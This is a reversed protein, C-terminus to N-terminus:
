STEKELPHVVVGDVVADLRTLFLGALEAVVAEDVAGPLYSWLTQLQPGDPGEVAAANLEVAHDVGMDDGSRGDLGGVVAWDREATDPLATDPLATDPLATDPLTTGTAAGAAGIRGLYNVLLPPVPADALPRGPDLHRLVGWGVGGDPVAALTAAVSAVADAASGTAPGPDLRVPFESTFWGVTRGLDSGPLLQEERGHREVDVLVPGAPDGHADRQDAVALAVATLLVAEVGPGGARLLAAVGPGTWTRSLGRTTAVTDRRPDLPACGPLPAADDLVARWRGLEDRRQPVLGTLRRAWSRFSTGVPALQPARGALVARGAEALDALLVRWSVGDVVAHHAVVVLRGPADRGADLHTVVLMRGGAPDLLGAAREAEEVPDLAGGPDRVARVAATGAGPPPVQLSWRGDDDLLSARLLDHRDLLARVAPELAATATGAPVQLTMFQHFTRVDGGLERIRELIPWAPVEGLGLGPDEVVVDGAPAAAAAAAIAEVTRHTFVERPRLALGAARARTALQMSSISDGGLAFFDDDAALPGDLGLVEAVLEAVLLGVPSAPARGGGTAPGPVPLVAKDIKGHVTLPLTDLVTVAAPVLHDPVRAALAARLAAGDGVPDGAPVVWGLLRGGRVDAVAARVGPLAGLAAEVEGLEIRFGRVKVQDDARGLYELRGDGTWRVLDGTRYLRTGPPGFPDAVFRSATLGPRDHYGHALQPGGLYLEGTVAAPVPRLRGDLVHARLGTVPRGIVPTASDAVAAVVADVCTETPGYFNFTRVTAAGPAGAPRPLAALRRWQSPPVAEGGVGLVSLGCVGDRVLGATAVQEFVSPALEVADIAHDHLFGALAEADRQTAEDVLHLAHGGLLGLLPQWSADFAFSWTHAIRLPRGLGTAAPGYVERDHHSWLALLSRHPVVVGKPRGTSGSTFIVYAPDDPRPGPGPDGDPLPGDVRLLERDGPVDTGSLTLVLRPDADDLIGGIRAAPYAPDLPVYAAGCRLAALIAVVVDTTRPLLLAVRDGRRVGRGALARALRDAAAGLEAWSSTRDGAVLAPADPTDRVWRWVADVVTAPGGVPASGDGAWAGLVRAREAGSLVDVADVPSGPAAVWSRLVRAIRDLLARAADFDLLDPRYECTLRLREGDPVVVLTVPYHTADSGGVGSVTVGAARESDAVAAEDVPYSEVVVLTDFLEGGGALRQVRALDVHQHALLRAQEDRLRRLFATGSEGARTRVRVPLTNIFLGVMDEVGPLDAPRGSVTAGFVVDERGTLRGLVVGWAAQVLTSLTVDTSRALAALGAGLGPDLDLDLDVHEPAVPTRAPDPPCLLTPGGIGDLASRWAAVATGDAADAADRRGLWALFDRFPRAPPLPTGALLAFLDRAVLPASWGDMLLHHHTLVLRADGGPLRLLAARLLPATALDFRRGREADTREDREASDAVETVTWGPAARRPVVQVPTGDACAHVAVRLNPHRDLLAHLATRLADPDVGPGLDLTEQVTYVDVGAAGDGAAGGPTGDGDVSALFWLGRQLPTLPWVDDVAGHAATIRDVEAQDLDVLAFDSPTHRSGGGAAATAIADLAEGVGDAVAAVVAGDLAGAPHSFGIELRPGDADDRVVADVELLHDPALVTEDGVGDVAVESWDGTADAGAGPRGLYNVLIPPTPPVTSPVTSPATAAPRRLAEKVAVVAAAPDGGAPDLAVPALTTFWGVTRSLDVATDVAGPDRGHRERDIWVPRDAGTDGRTGGHGDGHTARVRRVALALAALLVDEVGAHWAAPVRGLLAGTRDPDLTRVTRVVTAATDREPDLSRSGPLGDPGDPENSGSPASHASPATPAPAAAALLRAWTRFSTGVPGLAAPRGERAARVATALDPLLIQWSVADVVLHHAVLVLRGAREPSPPALLVAALVVGAPPDLRAVAADHAGAVAADHADHTDHTDHTGETDRADGTGDWAAVTLLPAADVGGRPRIELTGDDGHTRARLVDHTDLLAALAATVQEATTGPPTRLVTSQCFRAGPAGGAVRRAYWATIPTPPVLGSGDPDHAPGATDATAARAAIAAPTRLEFVQRPDTLIGEERLRSVLRIASISDGGLAFFGDHVGVRDLGLVEAVVAVVRREADTRPADTGAGAGLDPAPLASRDVKGSIATPVAPIPVFAAPVLHAPLVAALEARLEAPDPDAGPLAPVVWAVLRPGAPTPHLGVVARAVGPLAALAAEVEGPEIRFGHLKIQDDARGLFELGGALRRVLDGTRYMRAGPERPDAVFRQATLAPNALYGRAVGDGGLYLEGPVGDPVPRLRDDLVLARMGPDPRGILVPEDPTAPRGPWLTANVTTETPGYANVVHHDASWRHILSRSSADTGVVVATGPAVAAPDLLELLAPPVLLVTLARDRVVEVLGEATRDADDVIVLTGGSLVSVALEAITVDFAPSYSQSARSGPGGIGVSAFAAVLPALGAHPVVVGKPRGTSGSTFIVYAADDPAPGPMPAPDAAAVEAVVAPDDLRLWPVTDPRPADGRTIGLLPAADGLVGAIRAPPHGPDLPVYVGGAQQVALAAVLWDVSRPLAVAVARERGVGRDALVRALRHVRDALGAYTLTTTGHEVAVADPTTAAYGLVLGPFTSPPADPLPLGREAVALRAHEDDDLLPLAGVRSEPAAVAAGLLRTFRDGLARVTAADFLDRSYELAARLVPGGEDLLAVTLDFQAVDTDAHRARTGVGALGVPAGAEGVAASQFSLMVGFLPNRALSREHGVADVVRDFPVDAHAFAALDTGRVRAVLEAFTPDGSVDTRLVLTNVFFGVLDDLAPDTRGAVPTGLPVDTGAGHRELLLAVAAQVVMFPTAGHAAAVRRVGEVTAAPLDLEVRGGRFSRRPPRPRDAPLAIEEPVGALTNRWFALQRAASSDPDDEDGLLDLQWAAYDAYQLPLAPADPARGDRRAAYAEALDARLAGESWEDVAIHHAVLAFVHEDRGTRWLHARLPPETDLAFGRGAATALLGDVTDPGADAETFPVATGRPLVRQHPVGDHEPYVTRLVEHRDVVDGLAARLAATDLPGSLEQVFAILYTADAGHARHHFWMRRQAPSLPPREPRARGAWAGPGPPTAPDGALAAAVRRALGAPTPSEFVARIPLDAGLEARIRALLRTATLSHGGLAFFDTDAGVTGPDAGLVAAFAAAVLEEAPTRAARGAGAAPTRPDPLARRDVKGHATLPLADLLVVASPVLQPPLTAALHERLAAGTVADANRPVAYGVLRAPGAPDGPPPGAVVVAAGVQPHAALAATVEGPEVRVGRIQVQDDSRGLYALRGEADSRVLDGTRYLRSGDPGAVFREASRRPDGLYGRAVTPGQLYLEGPVGAPVPQLAPDLVHARVGAVPRGILPEASETSWLATADVCAETPGYLNLGTTAPAARLASWLGRGVAEGGVIVLRPPPGDPGGTLLGAEVAQEALAPTLDLVDLRHARTHRVLRHPDRRVDDDLLHLTHGCSQWVFGEWATDFSLAAALGFRRRGGGSREVVAARHQAALAALSRHEVVVGKPVGTSGSTFIVYALDGPGPAPWDPAGDSLGALAAAVQPDAPDVTVRGTGTGAPGLVLLPGAAALVAETRASPLGPDLPLLAAGTALVAWVAVVADATRPLASAVVTGPGAGRARLLRALRHARAALEGGTLREDGAVLAPAAPDATHTAAWLEPLTPGAVAPGPIGRWPALAALEAPTAAPTRGLPARPDAACADLLVVFRDLLARATDDGVVDRHHELELLLGGDPGAGPVATLSVPYHTGGAGGIEGVALGCRRELDRRADDDVPFNEVVVLTDFLPGAGALSQVEALPLWRHDLLAATDDRVRDILGAWTTAPGTAVRVPVTNIFLGVIDEVGPLDAPRGSVTLGFVVDGDSTHRALLVAWVAQLLTSLTTDRSRAVAALADTRAGTLATTVTRAGAAAGDGPGLAPALLTPTAGALAARWADLAAARDQRAVWALHDRFPRAPPPTAGSYLTLLDALVLPGSWGDVVIHHQTMLLRYRDPGLRLLTWRVLPPRGLDFGRDLEATAEDDAAAEPETGPGTLDVERWQPRVSRAVPSVLEGGRRRRFASRLAPHRDVVADAAAHLRAPDLPGTLDLTTQVVYPDRGAGDQAAATSLFYLGEQLPSPPLVDALGSGPRTTTM